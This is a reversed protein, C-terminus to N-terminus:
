IHILSLDRVVGFMRQQGAEGAQLSGTIEIWRLSGDPLHIRHRIPEATPSGDIVAQFMRLVEGREEEPILGIYDVPASLPRTPDLGFVKQAGRSWSVEGSEINWFWAGLGAGNLAALLHQSDHWTKEFEAPDLVPVHPLPPRKDNTNGM